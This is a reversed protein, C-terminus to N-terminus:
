KLKIRMLDSSSTIFLTKQDPTFACNSTKQGTYIRAIPKGAPNFIWIGKPGAAFIYGEANVKMGDPNGADTNNYQKPEYLVAGNKVFGKDDVDYKLWQMNTSDSNSIYLTKRDPSFALGNPFKVDKIIVDLKGGPTLRYVGQFDLQRGTDNLRKDLGYPPDTFYLEGNKTYVADNPSNLRKGEYRDALTTFAPTPYNLPADMLAMRRDGHQCLVLQGKANLILANSGPERKVVRNGTNGSPKLYLSAGSGEKWKFICNNPIDSFLVYDGDKVYVPGETWKHGSDLVEIRANSDIISLASPDFIQVKMKIPEKNVPQTAANNNSTNHCATGLLLCAAFAIKRM